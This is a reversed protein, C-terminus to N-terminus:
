LLAVFEEVTLGADSIIDRLTGAHLERQDPISVQAFPESRRYIMHDGKGQKVFRFGVKELAKACERGSVRPLKPM